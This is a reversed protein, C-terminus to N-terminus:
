TIRFGKNWLRIYFLTTNAIIWRSLNLVALILSKTINEFVLRQCSPSATSNTTSNDLNITWCRFIFLCIYQIICLIRHFPMYFYRIMDRHWVLYYIFNDFHQPNSKWRPFIHVFLVIMKETDQKDTIRYIYQVHILHALNNMDM